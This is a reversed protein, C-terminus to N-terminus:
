APRAAARALFQRLLGRYADLREAIVAKAMSMDSRLQVRRDIATEILALAEPQGMGQHPVLWRWGLGHFLGEFKPSYSMPVVPVGASFAAICAHMRAAVVVDMAAIWSKAAVPTDFPPVVILRPHLAAYHAMPHADNDVPDAGRVHGFLHIELDDRASLRALLADIFQRYDLTLEIKDANGSRVHLLGSINLGIRVRSTPPLVLPQAPMAFAVDTALLPIVGPVLARVVAASTEDRVAVNAANRIAWRALGKGISSRFPGITQPALLYPVGAARAQAKLAIQRVLRKMGYIDSFGDGEGIDLLCDQRAVQRLCVHPSLLARTTLDVTAALGPVYHPEPQWGAFLTFHPVRDVDAAAERILTMHGLTLAGIGLNGSNSTHWALGVNLRPLPEAM